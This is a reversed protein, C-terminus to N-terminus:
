GGDTAQPGALQPIQQFPRDVHLWTPPYRRCDARAEIGVAMFVEPDVCGEVELRYRRAMLALIVARQAGAGTPPEGDLLGGWPPRQSTLARVFGEEAGLGDPCPARIVLTAGDSLPPRPSLALYTAARSAQYLSIGKEATVELVAGPAAVPCMQWPQMHELATRVVQDPPGFMWLGVAPVWVLALRCGAAEGLADVAERFPNGAVRGIEVGPALVRDRHHLAAITARGGCGVAVAKHGGSVGAYQHLEVVGVAIAYPAEAVHRSVTGPIGAVTRTPVVDDPDHQIPGFAALPALAEATMPRHLGLGIVVPGRNPLREGLATLASVLDLYRTGDPVCIAPSDLDTFGGLAGAADRATRVGMPARDLLSADFVTAAM